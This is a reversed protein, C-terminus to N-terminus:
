VCCALRCSGPLRQDTINYINIAALNSIDTASTADIGFRQQFHTGFM